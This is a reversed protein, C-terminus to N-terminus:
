VFLYFNKRPYCIAEPSMKSGKKTIQWLAHDFLVSYIELRTASVSVKSLAVLRSDTKEGQHFLKVSSNNEPLTRKEFSCEGTM